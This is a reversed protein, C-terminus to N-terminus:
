EPKTPWIISEPFGAQQPVDRLAQRYTAYKGSVADPVDKGQTWDTQAILENRTARAIQALEAIKRDAQESNLASVVYQQTWVGDILVAPAEERKQTAPDFYPPTVLQLKFVGYHELRDTPLDRVRCYTKEDWLTPEIDTIYRVFAGDKIQVFRM